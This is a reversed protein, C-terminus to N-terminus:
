EQPWLHHHVEEERHGARTRVKWHQGSGRGRGGRPPAPSYTWVQRCQFHRGWGRGHHQVARAVQGPWVAKSAQDASHEQVAQPHQAAEWSPISEVQHPHVPFSPQLDCSLERSKLDGKTVQEPTIPNWKIHICKSTKVLDSSHNWLFVYRFLMKYGCAGKKVKHGKM